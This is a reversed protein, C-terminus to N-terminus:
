YPLRFYVLRLLQMDPHRGRGSRGRARVHDSCVVLLGHHSRLDRRHLPQLCWRVRRDGVTAGHEGSICSQEADREDAGCVEM